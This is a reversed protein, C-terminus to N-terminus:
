PIPGALCWDVVWGEVNQPSVFVRHFNRQLQAGTAEEVLLIPRTEQITVPTNAPVVFDHETPEVAPGELNLFVVSAGDATQGCQARAACEDNCQLTIQGAPAAEPQQQQQEGEPIVNADNGGGCAVVILAVAVVYLFARLPFRFPRFVTRASM